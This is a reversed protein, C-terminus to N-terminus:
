AFERCATRTACTACSSCDTVAVFRGVVDFQFHNPLDMLSQLLVQGSPDNSEFAGSGPLSPPIIRGSISTSSLTDAACDGDTRRRYMQQYSPGGM